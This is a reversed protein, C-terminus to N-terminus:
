RGCHIFIVAPSGVKPLGAGKGVNPFDIPIPFTALHILGNATYVVSQAIGVCVGEWPTDYKPDNATAWPMMWSFLTNKLGFGLKGATKTFYNSNEAWPSAHVSPATSVFFMLM